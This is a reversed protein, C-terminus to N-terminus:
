RIDDSSSSPSTRYGAAVLLNHATERAAALVASCEEATGKVHLKIFHQKVVEESTMIPQLVQHSQERIKAFLEDNDDLHFELYFRKGNDFIGVAGVITDGPHSQGAQRRYYHKSDSNWLDDWGEAQCDPLLKHVALCNLIPEVTLVTFFGSEPEKNNMVLSTTIVGLAFDYEIVTLGGSFGGRPTASVVFHVHRTGRLDVQANIEARAAVLYPRTTLPIPPYGLVIAEALVFDSEGLWDDLHSGLPVWPLRPDYERVKFVAVDIAEDPHFHPGSEIELASSTILHVRRQAGDPQAISVLTEESDKADLYARETTAIETIQLGEVVHRSTVFVGEGVHFASGIGPTGDPHTVAVYAM